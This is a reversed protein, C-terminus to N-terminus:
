LIINKEIVELVTPLIDDLDMQKLCYESAGPKFCSVVLETDKYTTVM